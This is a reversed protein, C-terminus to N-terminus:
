KGTHVHRFLFTLRRFKKALSGVNNVWVDQEVIQTEVEVEFSRTIQYHAM